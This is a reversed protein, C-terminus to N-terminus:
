KQNRRFRWRAQSRAEVLERELQETKDRLDIIQSQSSETERNAKEREQTLDGQLRDRESELASVTGVMGDREGEVRALDVTMRQRETREHELDRRAQELQDVLQAEAAELADVRVAFTDRQAQTKGLEILTDRQADEQTRPTGAELAEIDAAPIRWEDGQAGQSKAANPFKGAKVWRAITKRSKGLHDAAETLSFTVDSPSM